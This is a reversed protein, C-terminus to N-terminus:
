GGYPAYLMHLPNKHLRVQVTFDYTIVIYKSVAQPVNQARLVNEVLQGQVFLQTSLEM